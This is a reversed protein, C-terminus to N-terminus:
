YKMLRKLQKEKMCITGVKILEFIENIKLSEIMSSDIIQYNFDNKACWEKGAKFKLENLPYHLLKYPKVEYITSDVIFDPCYFHEGDGSTYPIRFGEASKIEYNNKELFKVMFSLELLSRFFHKKYWGQIGKGAGKPVGHTYNGNREGRAASALKNKRILERKEKNNGYFEDLTLGKRLRGPNKESRLESLEKAKEEGYIEKYTKGKFPSIRGKGYGKKSKRYPNLNCFNEHQVNGFGTTEKIRGCWKCKFEKKNYAKM